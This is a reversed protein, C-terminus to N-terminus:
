ICLIGPIDPHDREKKNRLQRPMQGQVWKRIHCTGWEWRLQLSQHQHASFLVWRCCIWRDPPYRGPFSTPMTASQTPPPPHGYCVQFSHQQCVRTIGLQLKDVQIAPVWPLTTPKTTSQINMQTAPVVPLTPPTAGSQTHVQRVPVRVANYAKFTASQTDMHTDPVELLATPKTASQTDVQIGPVGLLTPPTASQTDVQIGPVGASNSPNNSYGHIHQRVGPLM